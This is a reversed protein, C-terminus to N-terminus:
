ALKTASLVQGAAGIDLTCANSAFYCLEIYDGASFDWVEACNGYSFTGNGAVTQAAISTTGNLRIIVILAGTVAGVTGFAGVINYIGATNITIRSTNTVTSHMSDTDWAETDLPIAIVSGTTVATTTSKRARCRKSSGVVGSGAAAFAALETQVYATTAVSTDNDGPSPTPATPNGTLAPSALPAAGTIDAYGLTQPAYALATGDWCLPQKSTAGNQELASLKLRETGYLATTAIAAHATGTLSSWTPANDTESTVTM